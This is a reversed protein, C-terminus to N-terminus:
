LICTHVSICMKYIYICIRVASLINERWQCAEKDYGEGLIDLYGNTREHSLCLLLKQLRRYVQVIYHKYSKGAVYTLLYYLRHGHYKSLRLM